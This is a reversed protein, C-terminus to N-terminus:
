PVRAPTYGEAAQVWRKLNSLQWGLGVAGLVIYVVIALINGNNAANTRDLFFGLFPLLLYAGDMLLAAGSFSSGVIIMPDFFLPVLIAFILAGIGGFLFTFFAGGGFLLALLSGLSFGMLLGALIRRFPELQYALVAFLAAGVIALTWALMSGAWGTAGGTMWAGLFFGLLGGFLGYWVPLLAYFLWLGFAMLGLGWVILLIGLFINM